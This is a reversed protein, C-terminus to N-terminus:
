AAHTVLMSVGKVLINKAANLDRDHRVGCVPCTWHRVALNKTCPNQHGCHSCTQSSPYFTPVKVVTRGYWDAKYELQRIFEGWGADAIYKALRRNRVMGRINLDEVCIVQNENVLTSSLEHLMANRRNTVTEHCRAVKLRQKHYNKSGRVMRSLKRQEKALQKQAQLYFKHNDFKRGDSCTAFHTIGVDIGVTKTTPPPLEIEVEMLISAYYKGTASRQITARKIVGDPIKGGRAEIWGLLPLKVQRQEIHISPGKTTTYSAAYQRKKKFHPFGCQKKFFRQYADAVQGCAFKMAQSDADRLWPLYNKMQTLVKSMDYASMHEGRRTYIKQQRDLMHNFVFRCCDLTHDIRAQQEVTPYLRLKYAKLITKTPM